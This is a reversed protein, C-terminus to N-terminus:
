ADGQGRENLLPALDDFSVERDGKLKVALVAGRGVRKGLAGAAVNRVIRRLTSWPV